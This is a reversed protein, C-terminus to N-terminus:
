FRLLSKLSEPGEDDDKPKKPRSIDITREAQTLPKEEPPDAEAQQVIEEWSEDGVVAPLGVCGDVRHILFARRLWDCALRKNRSTDLCDAGLAVKDIELHFWGPGIGIGARMGTHGVPWRGHERMDRQIKKKVKRAIEQTPCFIRLADDWGNEQYPITVKWIIM